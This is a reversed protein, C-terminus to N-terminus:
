QCFRDCQDSDMYNIKGDKDPKPKICADYCNDYPDGGRMSRSRGRGRSRARDDHNWGGGRM